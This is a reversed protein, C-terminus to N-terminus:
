CVRAMLVGAQLLAGPEALCELVGAQPATVATEMKMAELTALVEGAQM